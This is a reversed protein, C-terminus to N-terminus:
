AKTVWVTERTGEYKAVSVMRANTSAVMRAVHGAWQM